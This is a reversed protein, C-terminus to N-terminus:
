PCADNEGCRGTGVVTPDGALFIDRHIGDAQPPSPPQPQLGDGQCVETDFFAERIGGPRPLGDPNCVLLHALDHCQGAFGWRPNSTGDALPSRPLNRGLDRLSLNDVLNGWAM